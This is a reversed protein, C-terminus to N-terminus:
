SLKKKLIEFNKKIDKAKVLYSGVVLNDAGAKAIKKANGSNVGGDVGIKVRKAFKRLERIKKLVQPQFRQGPFGPNVGLILVLNLWKLYPKIKEIETKPNLAIGKQFSYRAAAELVQSLNKAAEFHWIVREAKLKQCDVFYKEPKLVMLHIELHRPMKIKELERLSVSKNPVFKGDMIDVQVWDSLVAARKLNNKFNSLTKELVAPIIKTKTM